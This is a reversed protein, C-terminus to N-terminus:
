QPLVTLLYPLGGNISPSQGWVKNSFGAPLGAQLQSNTLGKLGPDNAYNGAGQSTSSVGSTSTDWYGNGIGGATDDEGVFGGVFSGSVGSM